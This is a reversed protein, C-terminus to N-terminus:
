RPTTSLRSGSRCCRANPTLEVDDGAWLKTSLQYRKAAQEAGIPETESQAKNNLALVLYSRFPRPFKTRAMTKGIVPSGDANTQNAM